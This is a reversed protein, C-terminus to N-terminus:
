DSELSKRLEELERKLEEMEASLKEMEESLEEREEIDISPVSPLLPFPHIKKLLEIKMRNDDSNWMFMQPQKELLNEPSEALELDKEIEKGDRVLVMSIVTGPEKDALINHTLDFQDQVDGGDIRTIV